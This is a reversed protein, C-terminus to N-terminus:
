LNTGSAKVSIRGNPNSDYEDTVCDMNRELINPIRKIEYWKGM